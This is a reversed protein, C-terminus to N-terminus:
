AQHTRGQGAFAQSAHGGTNGFTEFRLNARAASRGPTAPMADCCCLCPAACWCFRALTCRPSTCWRDRHAPGPCRRLDAAARRACRAVGRRVRTREGQAGRVAHARRGRDALMRAMGVIAIGIGGAVLLYQPAGLAGFHNNPESVRLEAGTELSWLHRSGGRGPQALKIAIRYVRGVGARAAPRRALVLLTKARRRVQASSSGAREPPQRGDLTARRRRPTGFERVTPALDRHARVTAPHWQTPNRMTSLAGFTAPSRARGARAPASTVACRRGCTAGRSARTNARSRRRTRRRAARHGRDRPPATGARRDACRACAAEVSQAM